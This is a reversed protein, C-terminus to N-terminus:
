GGARWMERHPLTRVSIFPKAEPGLPSPVVHSPVRHPPSLRPRSTPPPPHEGDGLLGLSQM